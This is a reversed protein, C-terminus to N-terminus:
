KALLISREFGPDKGPFNEAVHTDRCLHLVVGHGDVHILLYGGDVYLRPVRDDRKRVRIEGDALDEKGGLVRGIAGAGQGIIWISATRGM